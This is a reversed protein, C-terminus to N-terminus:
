PEAVFGPRVVSFLRGFRAELWEDFATFIEGTAYETPEDGGPEYERGLADRDAILHRAVQYYSSGRGYWKWDVGYRVYRDPADSGHYGLYTRREGRQRASVKINRVFSLRDAEWDNGVYVYLTPGSNDSYITLQMPPPGDITLESVASTDNYRWSLEGQKRHFRLRFDDGEIEAVHICGFYRHFEVEVGPVEFNREVLLRVFEGCVCDFPFHSASPLLLKEGITPKMHRFVDEMFNWADSWPEMPM